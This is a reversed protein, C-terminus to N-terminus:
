PNNTPFYEDDDDGEDSEEEEDDELCTSSYKTQYPRSCDKGSAWYIKQV